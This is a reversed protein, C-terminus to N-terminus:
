PRRMARIEAERQGERFEAWFRARDANRSGGGEPPLTGAKRRPLLRRWARRWRLRLKRGFLALM